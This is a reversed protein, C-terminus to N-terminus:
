PSVTGFIYKQRAVVAALATGARLRDCAPSLLHLRLLCEMDKLEERLRLRWHAESKQAFWRSALWDAPPAALESELPKLLRGMLMQLSAMRAEGDLLDAYAVETLEFDGTPSQTRLAFAQPRHRLALLAEIVCFSYRSGLFPLWSFSLDSGFLQDPFSIVTQPLEPKGAYAKAIEAPTRLFPGFQWEMDSSVPGAMVCCERVACLERALALASRTTPLILLAHGPVADLTALAMRTSRARAIWQVPSPNM